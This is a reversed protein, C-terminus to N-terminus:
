SYKYETNIRSHTTQTNTIQTNSSYTMEDLNTFKNTYPQEYYKIIRKM